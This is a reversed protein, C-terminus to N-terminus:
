GSTGNLLLPLATALGPIVIRAIDSLRRLAALADDDGAVAAKYYWLCAEEPSQPVGRAVEYAEGVSYKAIVHGAQAAQLYWDLSLADNVDCGCGLEYCLALEVMAEVHGSCAARQFYFFAQEIDVAVGFHGYEYMMALDYAADGDCGYYHACLLWQLGLEPTDDNEPTSQQELYFYALKKMAPGAYENLPPLEDDKNPPLAVLPAQSKADVPIDSLRQWLRVARAPHPALGQRGEWLCAALTWQHSAHSAVADDLLDKWSSQLVSLKALTGYNGYQTCCLQLLEPLLLLTEENDNNNVNSSHKHQEQKESFYLPPLEFFPHTETGNAVDTTTTM